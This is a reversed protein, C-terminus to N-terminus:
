ICQFLMPHYKEFKEYNRDTNAGSYDFLMNKACGSEATTSIQYCIAIKANEIVAHFRAFARVCNKLRIKRDIKRNQKRHSSSPNTRYTCVKLVSCRAQIVNYNLITTSVSAASLFLGV